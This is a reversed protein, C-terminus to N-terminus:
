VSPGLGLAQRGYQEAAVDWGLAAHHSAGHADRHFRQIPDSDMVARAGAAEFIRNVAQISLKVIFAKDRRYRARDLETFADGCAAKDLM